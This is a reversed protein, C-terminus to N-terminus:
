GVAAERARGTWHRDPTLLCRVVRTALHAGLRDTTAGWAALGADASTAETTTASTAGGAAAAAGDVSAQPFARWAARLDQSSQEWAFAFGYTKVGIAFAVPEHGIGALTRATGPLSQISECGWRWWQQSWPVGAFLPDEKGQHSLKVACWEGACDAVGVGAGVQGARAQVSGGLAAAVLRAGFGLGVIARGTAQAAGILRREAALAPNTVSVTPGHDCLVLADVGDVDPPCAENRWRRIVRVRAGHERLARALAGAGISEAQEVITISM